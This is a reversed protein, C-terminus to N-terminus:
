TSVRSADTLSSSPVVPQGRGRGRTKGMRVGNTRPDMVGLLRWSPNPSVIRSRVFPKPRLRDLKGVAPPGGGPLRGSSARM